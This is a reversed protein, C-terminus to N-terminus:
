RDAAAEIAPQWYKVSAKLDSVVRYEVPWREGHKIELFLTCQEIGASQMTAIIEEPVVKGQTNFEWTFPYEGSKDRLSQKVHLCVIDDAFAQLWAHPDTDCPDDSKLDGNSVDLCLRMPVAFEDRCLELIERAAPITEGIERPISMPQFMLYDLGRAAAHESLERWAAVGGEIREARMGPDTNDPVSMIGFHSGMGSAGLESSIDIFRKLWDLWVRRMEIDPHLVHNVRSHVSTFTSEIRLGAEECLERIRATDRQLLSAPLFPDLLDSTFQVTDLGLDNAVVSVWDEPCPFRNMAFSTNIGLSIDM